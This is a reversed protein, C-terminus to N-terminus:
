VYAIGQGKPIMEESMTLKIWRKINIVAATFYCQLKMKKLGRYRAHRLDHRRALESIKGEVPSRLKMDKKFEDTLNYRDAEMLVEHEPSIGVVRRGEEAKTCIEVLPCRLCKSMPFRFNKIGKKDLTYASTTVNMPCKLIDNERDYIFMSKPLVARTKTNRIGLPSVLQTGLDHLEKRHAAFSYAADGIMKVPALGFTKQEKSQNVLTTSDHRNGGIADISTIFRSKVTEMINAKYGHFKFKLDKGKAKCGFRADPDVPSVLLDSPKEKYKKEEPRGDDGDKIHEQLIRKLIEVKEQLQVDEIDKVLKLVALAEDVVKVLKDRKKEPTMKRPPDHNIVEKTYEAENIIHIVETFIKEHSKKLIKLIEYTGKKVLTIMTPIAINAIVHTADVRQIEDHEILGDKVLKKLIKDFIKKEKGNELLRKRFDGLSSHDFPREDIGLGLAFKIELDFMCAREMERDSLNKQMQLITAMALLAPSIAPRGNNTCYMSEFDQDRILPSVLEKFKRYFSDEPILEECLFDTDLFSSQHRHSKLM